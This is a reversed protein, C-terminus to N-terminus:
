HAGFPTGAERHLLSGVEQRAAQYRLISVAYHSVDPARDKFHKVAEVLMTSVEVHRLADYAEPSLAVTFFREFVPTGGVDDALNGLASLLPAIPHIGPDINRLKVVAQLQSHLIFARAGTDRVEPKIYKKGNVLTTRARDGIADRSRRYQELIKTAINSSSSVSQKALEDLFIQEEKVNGQFLADGMVRTVRWEVSESTDSLFGLATTLTRRRLAPFESAWNDLYLDIALGAGAKAVRYGVNQEDFTTVLEMISPGLHERAELLREAALLWVNRWHASRALLRLNALIAQDAGETLARAAMYEQISRVEFGFGSGYPSVLLVLRDLTIALLEKALERADSEDHGSHKLRATLIRAVAKRTLLADSSDATETDIQLRLGAQEQVHNIHARQKKLIEFATSKSVERDYITSYYADFLEYRTTPLEVAREALATMITVQLPTTMLSMTMRQQVAFSLRDHIQRHQEVDDNTRLDILASAYSMAEVSNFPSLVFTRTPFAEDFEAVYGQPRTTAIVFLDVGESSSEVVFNSIAAILANRIKTNPVEDLGDLILCVPWTKMYSHLAQPSISAGNIIISSAIYALLSPSNSSKALHTGYKALDVFVPWRRRRPIPISQAKLRQEMQGISDTANPGLQKVDIERIFGIRYAHAVIQAVTSKGQGPGGVLVIGKTDLGGDGPRLIQNGYNVLYRAIYTQHGDEQSSPLSGFPLCPLDIGIDSIRLKSGPGYGSDGIRVWQRNQLESAAHVALQKTTVADETKLLKELGVLFDGVSIQELYTQRVEPHTDLLGRLQNYDWAFWGELMLRDSYQKLLMEFQDVGGANETGSLTINTAFIFYRPFKTSARMGPSSLRSAWKKLETEVEELFWKWDATTAAPRERHKVQIVGYGDWPAGKGHPFSVPGEFSAERRGDKGSGFLRVGNGLERLALAQVMHEFQQWGMRAFDYHTMPNMM